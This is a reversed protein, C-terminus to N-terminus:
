KIGAAGTDPGILPVTNINIQLERGKLWRWGQIMASAVLRHLGDKLLSERAHIALMYVEGGVNLSRELNPRSVALRHNKLDIRPLHMTITVEKETRVIPYPQNILGRRNVQFHQLAIRPSHRLKIVELTIGFTQGAIKLNVGM